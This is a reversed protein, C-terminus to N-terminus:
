GRTGSRTLTATGAETVARATFAELYPARGGACAFPRPGVMVSIDYYGWSAGSTTNVASIWSM